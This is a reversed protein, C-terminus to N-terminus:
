VITSWIPEILFFVAQYAAYLIAVATAGLASTPTSIELSKSRAEVLRAEYEFLDTFLVALVLATMIMGGHPATILYALALVVAGMTTFSHPAFRRIAADDEAIAAQVRHNKHQIYRTLLNVVLLILIAFPLIPGVADLAGIPVAFQLLSMM